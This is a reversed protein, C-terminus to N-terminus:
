AAVPPPRRTVASVNVSVKVATCMPASLAVDPAALELIVRVEVLALKVLPTAYVVCNTEPRLAHGAVAAAASPVCRTEPVVVLVESFTRVIVTGAIVAEVAYKTHVYAV